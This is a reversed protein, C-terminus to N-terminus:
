REGRPRPPRRASRGRTPRSRPGSAGARRSPRRLSAVSALARVRARRSLTGRLEAVVSEVDSWYADVETPAPDGAGFVARDARAALARLRAAVAPHAAALTGAWSGAAEQRTASGPPPAGMDHAADVVEDWGGAVRHVPDPLARRRRRRRAKLAVVVLLPSLLVLLGALGIGTATLVLRVWRAVASEREEDETQPQETDDEPPDVRDEPLDPPQVVQPQPDSPTNEEEEEPTQSSPPTPDFAVWGHGAFAVEVWAQVDKGRIQVAGDDTTPVTVEGGDGADGAGPVFGLVVRAPLGMERAMLAMAAAYQEGDGVMISSGDLLAALRAAGHGALSPHDGADTLGHSFFGETALWTELTRAVQVPTGADRAVDAATVAVSQPVGVSPPQVVPAAPAAGVTEDDPTTPVVVDVVYTQGQEVGSTLVAGGTADNYRLDAGAAGLDFATAQGVTPLWVGRLAEITVRVTAREGTVSTEVVDGVRRFEGSAQASGDGAVNWVVGDYRDFTALRVRADAPLGDVTFLVTEDQKVMRRFAALPSPYDRPDFPPTIEDRVVFRPTSGTVLPGGVLGGAAVVAAMLGTALVRRPRFTGTRAAAWPLLVLTMVVGVLVPPVPPTRTGLVVSAVLVAPPVLAATAAAGPRRVRLTLAASAAAGVLAVVLAAVLLTGSAGVPPQLTVVQAWTSVLGRALATVTAPTPVVGAVTTTPAALAGGLLFYGALLSAVVTLASWRRVAGLLAVGVGLVLGGVLAPLVTSTGYVPLLPTLALALTGLLVLLDALAASPTRVGVARRAPTPSM